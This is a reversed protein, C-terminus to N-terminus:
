FSGAKCVGHFRVECRFAVSSLRTTTLGGFRKPGETRQGLSAGGPLQAAEIPGRGGSSNREEEREPHHDRHLTEHPSLGQREHLGTWSGLSAQQTNCSGTIM